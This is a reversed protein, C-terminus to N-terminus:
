KRVECLRTDPLSKGKEADDLKGETPLSTHFRRPFIMGRAARTTLSIRREKHRSRHALNWLRRTIDTFEREEPRKAKSLYPSKVFGTVVTKKTDPAPELLPDWLAM